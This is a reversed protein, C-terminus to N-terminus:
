SRDDPDPKTEPPYLGLADHEHRLERADEPTSKTRASPPVRRTLRAGDVLAQEAAGVAAHIRGADDAVFADFVSDGAIPALLALRVRRPSGGSAANLRSAADRLTFLRRIRDSTPLTGDLWNYFQRRKIGLMASVDQVPLRTLERIQQAAAVFEAPDTPDVETPPVAAADPFLEATTVVAPPSWGWDTEYVLPDISGDLYVSTATAGTAAKIALWPVCAPEMVTNAEDLIALCVPDDGFGRSSWDRSPGKLLFYSRSPRRSMPLGALWGEFSETEVGTLDPASFRMGGTADLVDVVHRARAPAVSM